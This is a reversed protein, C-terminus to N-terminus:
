ANAARLEHWMKRQRRWPLTRALPQLDRLVLPDRCEAVAPLFLLQIEPGAM